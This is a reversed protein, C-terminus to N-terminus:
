RTSGEPVEKGDPVLSMIVDGPQGLSTVPVYGQKGDPVLSMIVDGTSRPGRNVM